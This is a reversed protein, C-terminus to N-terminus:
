RVDRGTARLELGDAVMALRRLRFLLLREDLDGGTCVLDSVAWLVGEHLHLHVGRLRDNHGLLDLVARGDAAGPATAQSGADADRGEEAPRGLSLVLSRLARREGMVESELRLVEPPGEVSLAVWQWRHGVPVQVRGSVDSREEVRDLEGKLADWPIRITM